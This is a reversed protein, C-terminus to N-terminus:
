KDKKEETEPYDHASYVEVRAGSDVLVKLFATVVGEDTWLEIRDNKLDVHVDYTFQELEGPTITHIKLKSLLDVLAQSYREAERNADGENRVRDSIQSIAADADKADAATKFRGIMVINHSHESSYGHWIKM